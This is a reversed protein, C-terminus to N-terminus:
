ICLDEFKQRASKELALQVGSNREIEAFMEPTLENSLCFDVVAEDFCTELLSEHHLTSM